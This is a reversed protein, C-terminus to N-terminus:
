NIDIQCFRNLMNWSVENHILCHRCVDELMEASGVLCPSCRFLVPLHLLQKEASTATTLCFRPSDNNNIQNTSQFMNSKEMYQSITPIM